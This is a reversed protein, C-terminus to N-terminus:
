YRRNKKSEKIIEDNDKIIKKLREIAQKEKENLM